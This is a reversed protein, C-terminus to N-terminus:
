RQPPPPGLDRVFRWFWSSAAAQFADPTMAGAGAPLEAWVPLGTVRQLETRNVSEAFGLESPLSGVVLGVTKLGASEIARLTLESHNLTGLALTTVVLVIVTDGFGELVRGLDLLTGGDTDLRVLVGGAGEILVFDVDGSHLAIQEAITTVSPITLDRLRAASDPALPDPLTVIEHVTNLGTLTRVTAADTPEDTAAGTQVPKVVAVRWGASSLAAAAAATTITKGVGTSTGTVLLHVPSTRSM